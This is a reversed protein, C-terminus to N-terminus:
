SACRNEGGRSSGSRLAREYLDLYGAAMASAGYRSARAIARRALSDRKAPDLALRRIAHGLAGSDDPPVYMAADAWVERLSPIDGLVLACGSLAAELPAL